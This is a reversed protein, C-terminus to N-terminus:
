QSLCGWGGGLKQRELVGCTLFQRVQGTNWAVSAGGSHGGAVGQGRREQAWGWVECEVMQM